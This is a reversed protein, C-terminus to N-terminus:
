DASAEYAEKALHYCGYIVAEESRKAHLIPPTPTMPTSYRALEDKLLKEYKKFHSGVGGGIIIVDPQIVAILSNLGLAFTHAIEKWTKKDSIDKALKGYRRKIASGAAFDEWVQMRDNYQLKMHGVESDAFDPDIKGNITIGSGIGTSITVYLVKKYEDIVELAESLGALNADNELVIPCDIFARLDHKIPVNEWELNGFALGIGKTRNVLGPVAVCAYRFSYENFRALTAKLVGLFTKYDGPTKFRISKSVEGTNTFSAVLTKTGGIDIALYM